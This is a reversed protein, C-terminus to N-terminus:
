WRKWSLTGSVEVTGESLMIDTVAVAHRLQFEKREKMIRCVRFHHVSMRQNIDLIQTSNRDDANLPAGFITLRGYSRTRCM